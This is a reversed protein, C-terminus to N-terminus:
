RAGPAATRAVCLLSVGFPLSGRTVWHREASFAAELIREVRRPLRVDFDSRDPPDPTRLLRRGARIAAVPLFLLSNFYSAHEVSFGHARLLPVLRSRRYRRHHHCVVDQRGFLFPFAPVSLVFRGDPRLVRRIERLAGDEDEVHELVDFAFVADFSAPAFPLRIADAQVALALEGCRSEPRVRDVAVLRTRRALM